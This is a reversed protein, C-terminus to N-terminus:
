PTGSFSDISLLFVTNEILIKQLIFCNEIFNREYVYIFRSTPTEEPNRTIFNKKNPEIHM